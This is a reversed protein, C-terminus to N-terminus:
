NGEQNVNRIADREFVLQSPTQHMTTCVTSRIAFLTSSYIGEWPRKNDLDLEQFKFTCIFNGITQHVKKVITNAQPYRARIPSCPTTYDNAMMNKFLALREKGKDVTIMITPDNINYTMEQIQEEERM